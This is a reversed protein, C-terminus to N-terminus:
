PKIWFSEWPFEIWLDVISKDLEWTSYDVTESSNVHNVLTAFRVTDGWITSWKENNPFSSTKWDEKIWKITAGSDNIDDVILINKGYFADESMWANSETNKHDRLSINLSYMPTGLYQSLLVAPIVGGRSIGAIYDPKFNSSNIQKALDLCAGEIQTWNYFKTNM